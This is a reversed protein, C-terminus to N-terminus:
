LGASLEQLGRSPGASLLHPGQESWHPEPAQTCVTTHFLTGKHPLVGRGGEGAFLAEEGM